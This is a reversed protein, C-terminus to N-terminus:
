KDDEEIGHLREFQEVGAYPRYRWTTDGDAWVAMGPQDGFGHDGDHKEPLLCLVGGDLPHLSLCLSM